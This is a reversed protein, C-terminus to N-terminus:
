QFKEVATKTTARERKRLFLSISAIFQELRFSSLYLPINICKHLNTDLTVLTDYIRRWSITERSYLYTSYLLAWLAASYLSELAIKDVNPELLLARSDFIGDYLIFEHSFINPLTGTDVM